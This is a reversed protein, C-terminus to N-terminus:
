RGVKCFRSSCKEAQARSVHADCQECWTRDAAIVMPHAPPEDAVRSPKHVFTRLMGAITVPSMGEREAVARVIEIAPELDM